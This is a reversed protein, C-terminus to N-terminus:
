NCNLNKKVNSLLKSVNVFSHRAKILIYRVIPIRLALKVKVDARTDCDMGDLYAKGLSTVETPLCRKVQGLLSALKYHNEGYKTQAGAENNKNYYYGIEKYSIGQNVVVILIVQDSFDLDSFQPVNTADFYRELDLDSQELIDLLEDASITNLKKLFLECEEVSFSNAYDTDWPLTIAGDYFSCIVDKAVKDDNLLVKFGDM